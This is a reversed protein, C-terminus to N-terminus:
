CKGGSPLNLYHFFIFVALVSNIEISDKGVRNNICVHIEDQKKKLYNSM